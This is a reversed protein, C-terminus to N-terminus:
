YPRKLICFVRISINHTWDVPKIQMQLLWINLMQLCKIKIFIIYGSSKNFLTYTVTKHFVIQYKNLRIYIHFVSKFVKFYSIEGKVTSQKFCIKPLVNNKFIHFILSILYKTKFKICHFYFVSAFIHLFFIKSCYFLTM